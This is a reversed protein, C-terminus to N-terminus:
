VLKIVLLAQFCICSNVVVKLHPFQLVFWTMVFSQTIMKFLVNLATRITCQHFFQGRSGVGGGVAKAQNRNGFRPECICQTQSQNENKGQPPPIEEPKQNEERGDVRSNEPGIVSRTLPFLLLGPNSKSLLARSLCWMYPLCASRKLNIYMKGKIAQLEALNLSKDFIQLDRMLGKFVMNKRYSRWGVSCDLPTLRSLNVQLSTKDKEVGNIFMTMRGTPQDWTIALHTWANDPVSSHLYM